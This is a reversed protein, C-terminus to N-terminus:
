SIAASGNRPQGKGAPEEWSAGYWDDTGMLWQRFRSRQEERKATSRQLTQVNSQLSELMQLPKANAREVGDLRTLLASLENGNDLRWQDMSAALTQQNGNLKVLANHLEVLDAGHAAHLDLTRQGFGQIVKELAGIREGMDAIIQSAETRHTEVLKSMQGMREVLPQAVQSAIEARGKEVVSTLSQFREGVMSQIREGNTGHTSVSHSLAKIDATVNTALQAVQNRQAIMAEEIARIREGTQNTSREVQGVRDVVGTTGRNIETMRTEIAQLRDLVPALDVTVAATRSSQVREIATLRDIVPALAAATASPRLTQAQEIAALRETIPEFNVAAGAASRSALQREVGQLREGITALVASFQDFGPSTAAEERSTNVALELGQLREGLVTWGRALDAFKAEVNREIGALRDNAYGTSGFDGRPELEVQAPMERKRESILHSVAKREALLEGSLERITRELQDLRSNQVVDAVTGGPVATATEAPYYSQPPQQAGQEPMFYGPQPAQYYGPQPAAVRVWDRPPEQQGYRGDVQYAGGLLPPLPESRLPESANRPQWGPANRKLMVVGSQESNLEFLTRLLDSVTVSSNRIRARDSAIHLIDALLQSRRPSVRENGPVIAEDSAILSATDHRLGSVDIGHAALVSVAADTRTMANLLHEVRVERARHALALDYGHNCCALVAEDVMVPDTPVAVLDAQRQDFTSHM